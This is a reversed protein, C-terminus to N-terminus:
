SIYIYVYLAIIYIYIYMYITICIYIYVYIYNYMYIYIYICIYICIYMYIHIYMYIYVYKFISYLDTYHLCELNLLVCMYIYIYIGSTDRVRYRGNIMQDCEFEGGTHLNECLKARQM